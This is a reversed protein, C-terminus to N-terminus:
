KRGGKLVIWLCIFIGGCLTIGHDIILANSHVLLGRLVGFAGALVMVGGAVIMLTSKKRSYRVQNRESQIEETTVASLLKFCEMYDLGQQKLYEAGNSPSMALAHAVEKSAVAPPTGNNQLRRMLEAHPTENM